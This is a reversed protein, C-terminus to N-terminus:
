TPPMAAIYVASPTPAASVPWAKPPTMFLGTTMPATASTKASM